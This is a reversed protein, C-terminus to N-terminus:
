PTFGPPLTKTANYEEWLQRTQDDQPHRALWRSLFASVMTHQKMSDYLRILKQYGLLFDPDAELSKILLETAPITDNNTLALKALGAWKLPDPQEHTFYMGAFDKCEDYQGEQALRSAFNILKAEYAPDFFECQRFNSAAAEGNEKGLFAEALYAHAKAYNLLPRYRPDLKDGKAQWLTTRHVYYGWLLQQTWPMDMAVPFKDRFFNTSDATSMPDQELLKVALGRITSYPALGLMNEPPINFSFYVPREFKNARLISMMAMDAVLFVTEAPYNVKLEGAQFTEPKQLKVPGLSEIDSDELDMPVPPDSQKLQRIYKKSVMAQYNILSRQADGFLIKEAYLTRYYEASGGLVLIGDKEVGQLQNAGLDRILFYESMDANQWRPYYPALLAALLVIYISVTVLREMRRSTFEMRAQFKKAWQIAMLYLLVAGAIAWASMMLLLVLLHQDIGGINIISPNFFWLPALMAVTLVALMWLGSGPRKRTHYIMGFHFLVLLVVGAILTDAQVKLRGTILPIQDMLLNGNRPLANEFSSVNFLYRWFEATFLQIPEGLGPVVQPRVWLYLYLSCGVVFLAIAPGLNAKLAPWVTKGQRAFGLIMIALLVFVMNHSFSLGALFAVALMRTGAREPDEECRVLMWLLFLLLLLNFAYPNATVALSWVLPLTFIFMSGLAILWRGGVEPWPRDLCLREQLRDLLSFGLAASAAMSLASVLNIGVAPELSPRLTFGLADGVKAVGIILPAVAWAYLKAMMSCILLYFLNGPAPPLGAYMGNVIWSSGEPSGLSPALTLIFIVLSVIFILLATLKRSM